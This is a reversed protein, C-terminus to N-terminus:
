ASCHKRILKTHMEDATEMLMLLTGSADRAEEITMSSHAILDDLNDSHSEVQSLRELATIRVPDLDPHRKCLESLKDKMPGSGPVKFALFLELVRRIVNPMMFGYESYGFGAKEFELVKHCLFHYESDYERLLKSMEILRTSRASGDEPIRVDLFLLTATPMSDAKRPYAQHKWAKKFENMCHQNHTFVFLQAAFRLYGQVLACAYNMAKTDLSSIPDDVVIILNKLERGDAELTTLFYSLAIATQEGESPPGKVLRGNRHLEYGNEAAVVALEGHGLYARILKTIKDAAPGHTRVKQRLARIETELISLANEAANAKLEADSVATSKEQFEQAGEALFHQTMSRRADTQLKAFDTSADNHQKIVRNLQEISIRIQECISAVLEDPPLAHEVPKTPTKQRERYVRLIEKKLEHLADIRATLSDIATKMSGQFPPAVDRYNLRIPLSSISDFFAVAEREGNEIEDMLESLRDDFAAALLAKREGNLENGCFICSGLKNAEHYELGAKAWPVMAPHATLEAVM